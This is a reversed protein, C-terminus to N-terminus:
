PATGAEVLAAVNWLRVDADHGTAALMRGDPSLAVCALRASPGGLHALEAGTALSWLRLAGDEGTTALM